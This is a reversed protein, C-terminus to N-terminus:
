RLTPGPVEITRGRPAAPAGEPLRLTRSGPQPRVEIEWEEGALSVSWAERPRAIRGRLRSRGTLAGDHGYVPWEDEVEAGPLAAAALLLSLAARVPTWAAAPM